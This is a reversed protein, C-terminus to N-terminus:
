VRHPDVEVRLGAGPPRPVNALADCLQHHTSARILYVGDIPGLVEVDTLQDVYAPANKGSIRALASYPPWNMLSRRVREQEYFRDPDGNVAAVIVDHEPQRTQVLVMGDRKHGGVIRSARALLILADEPAQYRSALLEQDFDIFGVVDARGIRHLVAETGVVVPADPLEDASSSVEGVPRGALTELEERAKSIGPRLQKFVTAGCHVCLVPQHERCRSCEMEEGNLALPGSCKVCRAIEDCRGCILLQARGKRNLVLAVRKSSRLLEVLVPSYIGTRPDTKRLDVTHLRAWGNREQNGLPKEVPYREVVEMRPVPSFLKVTVSRRRAREIVVDVASWTPAREDRYAEDHADIVVIQHIVPMVAWAAARTGVVTVGGRAAQAWDDPHLAVRHGEDRLRKAMAVAGRQSPVLVLCPGGAVASVVSDIASAAPAVRKVEVRAEVTSDIVVNADPLVDSVARPPSATVLFFQRKGFWRWSAWTALSLLEGTPGAGTVKQLPKLVVGEPATADADIVWGRIRRGNLTVRVITGTRVRPVM